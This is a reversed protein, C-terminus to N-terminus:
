DMKSKQPAEMKAKEKGNDAIGQGVIYAMLPTIIPILEETSVNWGIKAGAAAITTCIAIIAKKSKALDKIAPWM